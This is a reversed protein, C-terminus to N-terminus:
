KKNKDPPFLSEILTPKLPSKGILVNLNSKATRNDDWLSLAQRYCDLSSDPQLMHRYITGKNTLSVSLRRPTEIQALSIDKVRKAFVKKFNLGGFEPDDETMYPKILEAISDSTLSGWNEIWRQYHIISSDCYKLSLSLLTTKEFDSITSDYLALLLLASCKNNYIIGPEFSAKYDPYSLFIANASDLLPFANLTKYSDSVSEYKALYEKAKRIRPDEARNLGRYYFFAFLLTLVSVSLTIALIVRTGKSIKFIEKFRM